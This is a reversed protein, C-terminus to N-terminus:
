TAQPIPRDLTARLSAAKKLIAYAAERQDISELLEAYSLYTDALYKNPQRELLEVALEYLELAREVDRSRTFIAALQSYARGADLPHADAHYGTASGLALEAARDLDGLLALARAEELAFTILDYDTGESGLLQRGRDISELASAADGSDLEIFALMQYARATYLRHETAELLGLAKHAFRRASDTEGRLAHLRSQSWYLRALSLADGSRQDRIAEALLEAAEGFAACDILVNALLVSFRTISIRDERERARVLERRFLATALEEEGVRAYARGLTDAAGTDDLQPDLEYAAELHQIAERADDENFAIQGLGVSARAQLWNPEEDILSAFIARARDTDGLRLVLDGERLLSAADPEPAAEDAGTALWAETVGLREALMRIVQLSPVRQGAELLSIYGTSCGPFTLDVQRLGGARRVTRLRRGLAEPSDIHVRTQRAMATTNCKLQNGTGPSDWLRSLVTGTFARKIARIARAANTAMFM